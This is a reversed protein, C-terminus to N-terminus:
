VLRERYIGPTLQANNMLPMYRIGGGYSGHGTYFLELDERSPLKIGPLTYDTSFIMVRINGTDSWTCLTSYISSSIFYFQIGHIVAGKRVNVMTTRM